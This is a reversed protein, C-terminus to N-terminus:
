FGGRVDRTADINRVCNGRTAAAARLCSQYDDYRCDLTTSGPGDFGGRSICFAPAGRHPTRAAAPTVTIIAIVMIGIVMAAFAPRREHARPM